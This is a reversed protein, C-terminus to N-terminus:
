RSSSTSSCPGAARGADRGSEVWGERALEVLAIAQLSPRPTRASSRRTRPRAQRAPGHPGHAAPVVVRHEPANAQFVRDLDGVDIGLELTSTCVICANRATTSGSRPPAASRADLGLQPPRVRRHRRRADARRGDRDALAVPLLVPEEQGRRERAAERPSTARTARTLCSSSSASRRPGEAPRRRRGRAELHGQLWALIADPNGVTASLGSASCTTSAVGARAARPREDPARRPRHRRARPGRRHRRYATASCGGCRRGAALRADGRAVGPTTM